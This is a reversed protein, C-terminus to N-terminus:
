LPQRATQAFQLVLARTSAPCYVVSHPLLHVVISCTNAPRCPTYRAQDRRHLNQTMRCRWVLAIAVVRLSVRRDWLTTTHHRRSSALYHARRRGPDRSSGLRHTYQVLPYVRESVVDRGDAPWPCPRVASRRQLSSIYTTAPGM